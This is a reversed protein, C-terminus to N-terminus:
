GPQSIGPQTGSTFSDPASHMERCTCTYEPNLQIHMCQTPGYMCHGIKEVVVCQRTFVKRPGHM